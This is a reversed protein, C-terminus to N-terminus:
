KETTYCFPKILFILNIDCMTCIIIYMNGLIERLLPLWVIFSPCNISYLLLFIKRWFDHLFHPLSVLKQESRKKNKLFARCLYCTTHLKTKIYKSLRWSPIFYISVTYFKLSNIWLYAWNENRLFADPDLKKKM